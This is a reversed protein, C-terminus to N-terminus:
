AEPFNSANWYLCISTHALQPPPPPASNGWNFQWHLLQPLIRVSNTWIWAFKLLIQISTLCLNPHSRKKTWITQRSYWSNNPHWTSVSSRVIQAGINSNSSCFMEPAPFLARTGVWGGRFPTWFRWSFPHFTSLLCVKNSVNQYSNSFDTSWIQSPPRPVCTTGWGPDTM